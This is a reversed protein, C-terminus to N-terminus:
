EEISLDAMTRRVWDGVKLAAGLQTGETRRLDSARLVSVREGRALRVELEVDEGASAVVGTLTGALDGLPNRDVHSRRMGARAALGGLDSRGLVLEGGAQEAQFRILALGLGTRKGPKTTYFPDAAAGTDVPLGPGDDEVEIVLRDEAPADVVAVRIHHAGARLSNEVLDLIHLSWERM